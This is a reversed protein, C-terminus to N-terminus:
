RPGKAHNTYHAILERIGAKTDARLQGIGDVPASTWRIGSANPASPYINVGKYTWAKRQIM